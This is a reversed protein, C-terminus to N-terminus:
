HTQRYLFGASHQFMRRAEALYRKRPYVPPALKPHQVRPLSMTRDRKLRSLGGERVPSVEDRRVARVARACSEM